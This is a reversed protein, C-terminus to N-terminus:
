QADMVSLLRKKVKNYVERWKPNSEGGIRIPLEVAGLKIALARRTLSVDYHPASGNQFWERKMGLKEAFEHLEEVTDAMMHCMIMRGLRGRYDDVYVAM